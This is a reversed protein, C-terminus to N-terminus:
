LFKSRRNELSEILMKGGFQKIRPVSKWGLVKYNANVRQSLAASPFTGMFFLAPLTNISTADM